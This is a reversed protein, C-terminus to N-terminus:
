FLCSVFRSVIGPEIGCFIPNLYGVYQLEPEWARGEKSSLNVIEDFMIVDHPM